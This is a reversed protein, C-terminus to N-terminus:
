LPASFKLFKEVMQRQDAYHTRMDGQFYPESGDKSEKWRNFYDILPGDVGKNEARTTAGRRFSRALGYAERIEIGQPILGLGVDAQIEELLSYVDEEFDSMKMQEGSETQYAWGDRIGYTELEDVLRDAWLMPKLGSSTEAVVFLIMNQDMNGRLKFRGAFPLGLHAPLNPTAIRCRFERLHTLVLKPLEFGRLSACFAFVCFSATQVVRLRDPTHGETSLYLQDLRRMMELMVDISIAADQRTRQGLRTLLGRSFRAFWESSTPNTTAVTRKKYDTQWVVGSKSAPATANWVNSHAARIKRISSYKRTAEHRGPELSERLMTIAVSMGHDFDVPWPGLVPLSVFGFEDQCALLKKIGGLTARVTGPERAWFADLQARRIFALLREDSPHNPRPNTKRLKWFQCDDCEFPCMLTDGPRAELCRRKEKESM